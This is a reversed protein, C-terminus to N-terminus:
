GPWHTHRIDPGPRYPSAPPWEVPRGSRAAALPHRRRARPLGAVFEPFMSYFTRAAALERTHARSWRLTNTARGWHHTWRVDGVLAVPQGSRWARLCVEADEYYLFFRENWGGLRLFDARRAAVAAGMVWPVWLAEGPGALIRYGSHLRSLPWLRRNGLKATVYPFGRGNPQPAGGPSLLQPAALGGFADLHARLRDLGGPDVVLDPNAFLVYPSACHRV